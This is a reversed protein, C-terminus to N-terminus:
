NNNIYKGVLSINKIGNNNLIQLLYTLSGYDIGTDAKIFLHLRELSQNDYKSTLISAIKSPDIQKDSLYVAGEKSVYLTDYVFDDYIEVPETNLSPLNVNIGSRVPPMIFIILATLLAFFIAIPIVSPTPIIRKKRRFFHQSYIIMNRCLLSFIMMLQDQKKQHNLYM